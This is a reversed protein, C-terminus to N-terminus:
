IGCMAFITKQSKKCHNIINIMNANCVGRFWQYVATKKSPKCGAV